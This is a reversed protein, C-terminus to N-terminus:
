VNVTMAGNQPIEGRPRESVFLARMGICLCRWMRFM